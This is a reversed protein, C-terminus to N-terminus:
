VPDPTLAEPRVADPDAAQNHTRLPLERMAVALGLALVLLPVAYLFTGTLADAFDSIYAARPGPRLAQVAEPRLSEDEGIAAALRSNFLAGFLAVGISGGISRFFNVSATAVGLDSVPVANQTALVILQMTFGLGIGCVVMYIGSEWRSSDPGLTSLLFMGVATIACGAIPFRRYRGTRTVSRGAVISSALLGMMLPALLLGSDTASAGNVTQLFLPLFSIVGFMAMGIMLGIGSSLDFTRNRFLRLPLIPEDARREIAVFVATLAAAGIIMAVITPSGWEYENGGWTTVLVILTIAASLVVAGAYDIRVRERRPSAPLVIWAAVFAVLGLPINITFVWRWSLNDTFFGGLLPGAVSSAGFFAGFIGQYRGRERPSVVDAIIAQGLVILGGGGVGQVARYAILTPMSTALGCLVSGAVFIGIAVLFLTKRGFLDGLKGYLPTSVTTALLYSTVVWALHDLGGLDGVITPLATAVITQDLAALVMGLMLASFIVLVRKHTYGAANVAPNSVTTSM